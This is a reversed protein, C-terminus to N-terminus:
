RGLKKKAEAVAASDAPGFQAVKEYYRTAAPSGNASHIRAIELAVDAYRQRLAPDANATALQAEWATLADDYKLQELMQPPQLVVPPKVTPPATATATSTSTAVEEGPPTKKKKGSKGIAVMLLLLVGLVMAVALIVIRRPKPKAAAAPQQAAQAARSPPIQPQILQAPPRKPPPSSPMPTEFMTKPVERSMDPAPEMMTRPVAVSEAMTPLYPADPRAAQPAAAAEAAQDLQVLIEFGGLSYLGNAPVKEDDIRNGDRLVGDLSTAADVMHWGDSQRVLDAMHAPLYPDDIVIDSDAGSGISARDGNIPVTKIVIGHRQVLVKM